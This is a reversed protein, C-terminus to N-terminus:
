KPLSGVRSVVASDASSTASGCDGSARRGSRSGLAACAARSRTSSRMTLAPTIPASSASAAFRSGSGLARRSKGISAACRASVAAFARGLARCTSSVISLRSCATSSRSPADRAACSPGFTETAITTASWALPSM